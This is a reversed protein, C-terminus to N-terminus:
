LLPTRLYREVYTCMTFIYLCTLAGVQLVFVLRMIKTKGKFNQFARMVSHCFIKSDRVSRKRMINNCCALQKFLSLSLYYGRVRLIPPNRATTEFGRRRTDYYYIIQYRGVGYTNCLLM